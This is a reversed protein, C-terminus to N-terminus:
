SVHVRLFAEGTEQSADGSMATGLRRPRRPAAPDYASRCRDGRVDEEYQAALRNVEAARQAIAQRALRHHRYM